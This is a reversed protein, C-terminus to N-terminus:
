SMAEDHSRRASRQHPGGSEFRSPVQAGPQSRLLLHGDDVPYGASRRGDRGIQPSIETNLFLAAPRIERRLRGTIPQQNAGEREYM